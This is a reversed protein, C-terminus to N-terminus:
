SRLGPAYLGKRPEKELDSIHEPGFEIKEGAEIGTIMAPTNLLEGHYRGPSIPDLIKLWMRDGGEGRTGEFICKAVDGVFLSERQSRSEIHFTDPNERNRDEVNVLKYM